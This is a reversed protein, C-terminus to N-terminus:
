KMEKKIIYKKYVYFIHESAVYIERELFEESQATITWCYFYFNFSECDTGKKLDFIKKSKNSHLQKLIISEREKKRDIRNSSQLKHTCIVYLSHFNVTKCYFILM